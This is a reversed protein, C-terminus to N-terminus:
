WLVLTVILGLLSRVHTIPRALAARRLIYRLCVFNWNAPDSRFTHSISPLGSKEISGPKERSFGPIHEINRVGRSTYKYSNETHIRSEM